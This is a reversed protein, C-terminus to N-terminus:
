LRIGSREELRFAEVISGGSRDWKYREMAVGKENEREEDSGDLESGSESESEETKAERRAKRKTM